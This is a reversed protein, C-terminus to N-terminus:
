CFIMNITRHPPEKL